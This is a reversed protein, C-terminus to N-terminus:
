HSCAATATLTCAIMEYAIYQKRDLQAKELKAVKQAIKPLTLIKQRNNNKDQDKDNNTVHSNTSSNDEDENSDIYLESYKVGGVVTGGILNLM